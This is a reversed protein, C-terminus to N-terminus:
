RFVRVDAERFTGPLSEGDWPYTELTLENNELFVVCGAIHRGSDWHLEPSDSYVRRAKGITPHQVSVFFGYGTYQVEPMTAEDLLCLLAHESFESALLMKLVDVEYRKFPHSM